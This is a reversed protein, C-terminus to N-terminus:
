GEETQGASDIGLLHGQFAFPVVLIKYGYNLRVM